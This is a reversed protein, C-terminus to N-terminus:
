IKYFKFILWVLILLNENFLLPETQSTQLQIDKIENGIKVIKNLNTMM